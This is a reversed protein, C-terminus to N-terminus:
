KTSLALTRMCLLTIINHQIKRFQMAEISQKELETELYNNIKERVGSLEERTPLSNGEAYNYLHKREKASKSRLNIRDRTEQILIDFEVVQQNRGYKVLLFEAFKQLDTMIHQKGKPTKVPRAKDEYSHVWVALKSIVKFGESLVLGERIRQM